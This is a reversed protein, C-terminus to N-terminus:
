MKIYSVSCSGADDGYADMINFYGGCNTNKGGHTLADTTIARYQPVTYSPTYNPEAYGEETKEERDTYTEEDTVSVGTKTTKDYVYRSTERETRDATTFTQNDAPGMTADTKSCDNYIGLRKYACASGSVTGNSMYEPM